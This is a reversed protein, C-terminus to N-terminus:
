QLEQLLYNDWLDDQFKAKFFGFHGIHKTGVGEPAIRNTKM